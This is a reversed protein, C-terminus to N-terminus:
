IKTMCDTCNAPWVKHAMQRVNCCDRTIRSKMCVWVTGLKCQIETCLRFMQTRYSRVEAEAWISEEVLQKQSAKEAVCASNSLHLKCTAPSLNTCSWSHAQHLSQCLFAATAALKLSCYRNHSQPCSPSNILTNRSIKIHASVEHSTNPSYSATFLLM